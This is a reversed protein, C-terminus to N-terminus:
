LGASALDLLSSRHMRERHLQLDQAADRLEDLIQSRRDADRERLTTWRAHSEAQLREAAVERRLEDYEDLITQDARKRWVETLRRGCSV